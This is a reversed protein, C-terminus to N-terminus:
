KKVLSAALVSRVVPDAGFRNFIAWCEQQASEVTLEKRGLRMFVGRLAYIPTDQSVGKQGEVPRQAASAARHFASPSVDGEQVGCLWALLARQPANALAPATTTAAPKEAMAARMGAALRSNEDGAANRRRTILNRLGRESYLKQGGIVGWGQPTPFTQLGVALAENQINAVYGKEWM